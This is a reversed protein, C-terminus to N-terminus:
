SAVPLRSSKCNDALITLAQAAVTALVEVLYVIKDVLLYDDITDMSKGSKLCFNEM